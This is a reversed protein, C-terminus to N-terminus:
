AARPVALAQMKEYTRPARGQGTRWNPCEDDMTACLSDWHDVLTSWAPSLTRMEELRSRMPTVQELLLRCRRLDDPDLPHAPSTTDGLVAPRIGTLHAFITASSMGHEGAALWHQAQDDLTPYQRRTHERASPSLAQILANVSEPSGFAFTANALRALDTSVVSGAPAQKTLAVFDTIPVGGFLLTCGARHEVSYRHGGPTPLLNAQETM